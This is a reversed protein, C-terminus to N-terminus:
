DTSIVETEVRETSTELLSRRFNDKMQEVAEEPVGSLKQLTLFVETDDVFAALVTSRLYMAKQSYENDPVEVLGADILAQIEDPFVLPDPIEESRLALVLRVDEQLREKQEEWEELEVQYADWEPDGQKAPRKQTGAKTQMDIWPRKPKSSNPLITSIISEPVRHVRVKRGTSLTIERYDAKSISGRRSSRKKTEEIM